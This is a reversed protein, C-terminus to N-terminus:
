PLLQQQRLEGGNHLLIPGAAAATESLLGATKGTPLCSCGALTLVAIISGIIRLIGMDAVIAGSLTM